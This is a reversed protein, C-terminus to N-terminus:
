TATTACDAGALYYDRHLDGIAQPNEMLVKASWLEDQLNHGRSELATALGGDLIIQGQHQLYPTLPNEPNAM